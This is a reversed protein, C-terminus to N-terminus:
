KFLKGGMDRPQEVCVKAAIQGTIESFFEFVCVCVLVCIIESPLRQGKFVHIHVHRKIRRVLVHEIFSFLPLPKIKM